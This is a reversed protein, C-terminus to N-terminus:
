KASELDTQALDIAVALKIQNLKSLGVKYESIPVSKILPKTDQNLRDLEIDAILIDDVLVKYIDEGQEPIWNIVYATRMNPFNEQLVDRLRLKEEEEFLSKNSKILQQRIDQETKSGVLKM